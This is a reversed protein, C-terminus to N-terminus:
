DRIACSESVAFSSAPSRSEMEAEALGTTRLQNKNLQRWAHRSLKENKKSLTLRCKKVQVSVWGSKSKKIINKRQNPILDL